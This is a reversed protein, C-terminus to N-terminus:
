RPVSTSPRSTATSRPPSGRTRTAAVAPSVHGSPWGHGRSPHEVLDGRRQRALPTTAWTPRTSTSSKRSAWGSGSHQANKWSWDLPVLADFTAERQDEESLADGEEEDRHAM